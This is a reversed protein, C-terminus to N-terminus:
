AIPGAGKKASLIANKICSDIPEVLTEAIRERHEPLPEPHRQGIRREREASLEVEGGLYPSLFRRM